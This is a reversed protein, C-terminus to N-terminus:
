TNWIMNFLHSPPHTFFIQCESPKSSGSQLLHLRTVTLILIENSINNAYAIIILLDQLLFLTNILQTGGPKINIYSLILDSLTLYTEGQSTM